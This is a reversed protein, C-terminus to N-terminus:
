QLQEKRKRLHRAILGRPAFIFSIFSFVAMMVIIMPGTSLGRYATSFYTGVVASLGGFLGAILIVRHFRDSWQRAIVTPFILLSAVLITGVLKLGVGILSMTMIMTLFYIFSSSIGLTKAYIEDFVFVKIEKYFIGFLMLTLASVCLIVAVDQEMIYAAQGFIYNNLGSQSQTAYIPHGQIWSKFVMGLGFFTSLVIALIADLDLKSYHHILQILLFAVSGTLMAGTLLALPSKTLAWMFGLIIGPYAAHGIADGILSQRKLVSITGIMGTSSALLFTALAILLFSYSRVIDWQIM